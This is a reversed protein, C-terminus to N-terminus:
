GLSQGEVRSIFIFFKSDKSYKAFVEFYFQNLQFINFEQLGKTWLFATESSIETPLRSIDALVRNRM